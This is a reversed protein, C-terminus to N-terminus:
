EKWIGYSRWVNDVFPRPTDIMLHVDDQVAILRNQAVTYILPMYDATNNNWETMMDTLKDDDLTIKQLRFIEDNRKEWEPLYYDSEELLGPNNEALYEPSYNWFHLGGNTQWTNWGTGPDPTNGSIRIIVSEFNASLLNSVLTNFQVPRFNVNMGLKKLSDALINGIEVWITTSVNTTLDFAVINGKPGLLEGESNWTFGGKQLERKALSLSYRYRLSDLYEKDYFKSGEAQNTYLAGGLGNMQNDVITDRDLAFSVAKRFHVNRFWERQEKKPSNWNFSIFSPGPNLEGILTHYSEESEREKLSVYNAASIGLLDLEGAQFKLVETENNQVIQVLISDLYPLQVGDKSKAYFYPNKELIVRVGERYEKIVFPGTGVIDDIQEITWTQAFIEPDSVKDIFKHKPLIAYGSINSVANRIPMNYTFKVTDEEVVEMEPLNGENDKFSDNGNALMNSKYVINEFTFLVDEITFPVGDSWKVGKRIKFYIEMKGEDNINTWYKTALDPAVNFGYEDQQLLGNLYYNMFDTSNRDQSWYPNLIKPGTTESLFLTGGQQGGEVDTIMWEIDESFTLLFSMLIFTFVLVKKM